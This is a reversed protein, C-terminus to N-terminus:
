LRLKQPKIKEALREFTKKVELLEFAIGKKRKLTLQIKKM